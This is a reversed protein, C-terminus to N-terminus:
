GLQEKMQYCSKKIGDLRGILLAKMANGGGKATVYSSPGGFPNKYITTGAIGAAAKGITAVDGIANYKGNIMFMPAIVNLITNEDIYNLQDITRDCIRMCDMFADNFVYKNRNRFATVCRGYSQNILEANKRFVNIATLTTSETMAEYESKTIKGYTNIYAETLSMETNM